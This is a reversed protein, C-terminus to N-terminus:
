PHCSKKVDHITRSLNGHKQYTDTCTISTEDVGPNKVIYKWGKCLRHCVLSSVNSISAMLDVSM